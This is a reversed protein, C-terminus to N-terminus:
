SLSQHSIKRPSSFVSIYVITLKAKGLVLELICLFSFASTAGPIIIDVEPVTMISTKMDISSSSSSPVMM